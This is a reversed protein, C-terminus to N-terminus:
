KTEDPPVRWIQGLKRIGRQHIQATFNQMQEAFFGDRDILIRHADFVELMILTSSEISCTVDDRSLVQGQVKKGLGRGIRSVEHELAFISNWDRPVENLVVFLDIDSFTRANGRAYSGYLIVSVLQEGFRKQLRYLVEILIPEIDALTSSNELHTNIPVPTKM